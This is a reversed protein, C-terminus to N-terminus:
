SYRRLTSLTKSFESGPLHHNNRLVCCEELTVSMSTRDKGSKCSTLRGGRIWHILQQLAVLFEINKSKQSSYTTKLHNLLDEVRVARLKAQSATCIHMVNYLISFIDHSAKKCTSHHTKVFDLFKDIYLCLAELSQSNLEDQLQLSTAM